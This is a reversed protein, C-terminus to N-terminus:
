SRRRLTMGIGAAVLLAGVAHFWAFREDLFVVAMVSGFVPMLHVFHGAANAGIMAVGRNWFLYALVSPFVAVYAVTLMVPPDWPMTRGALTEAVYLPLLLACGALLTFGLFARPDLGEPRWRLLVSYLAWILAAGLLWFDGQNWAINALRWPQGASIIFLVGSLSLAISAAERRAVAAGFLLRNLGLILFPMTSQILVSNTATTTQLGIYVFTNFGAVGLAALLLMRSFRDRLLPWCARLPRWVFPLVLASALAWRWFALGIPPIAEHMARALVFNGAWFLACLSLLARPHDLLATM